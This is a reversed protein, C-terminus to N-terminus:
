RLRTETAQFQGGKKFEIKEPRNPTKRWYSIEKATHRGEIQGSKPLFSIEAMTTNDGLLQIREKAQNYTMQPAYATFEEAEAEVAGRATLEIARPRGPGAPMEAIKLQECDLTMEDPGLGTAPNPVFEQDWAAVPGYVTHVDGFLTLERPDIQGRAENYFEVYLYQLQDSRKADQGPREATQGRRRAAGADFGGGLRTSKLWAPQNLEPRGLIEGTQQNITLSGLRLRDFTPLGRDDPATSQFDVGGECRFELLDIQEREARQGFDVRDTLTFTMDRAKLEQYTGHAQVDGEFHVERGDFNMLRRWHVTIPQPQALPRGRFDKKVLMTLQGPADCSLLNQGRDLHVASSDITLGRAEIHAPSGAGGSVVVQEASPDARQVHIRAGVVRLPEEGPSTTLERFVAPRTMQGRQDLAVAGANDRAALIEVEAIEIDAPKGDRHSVVTQAELTQGSIQYKKQNESARNDLAFPRRNPAAAAPQIMAEATEHRFWMKMEAIQGGLRKSDLIQVGGTALMRTPLAFQRPSGDPASAGSHAVLNDYRPDGPEILWLHLEGALIRGVGTLQVDPQGYVSLLQEGDQRRLHLRESWRVTLRENPKNENLAASIVGAGSALLTGLAGRTKAPRYVIRPAFTQNAAQELQVERLGDPARATPPQQPRPRLSLTIEGTKLDYELIECIAKGRKAPSEVVVPAGTARLAVPELSPLGGSTEPPLDFDPATNSATPAGATNGKQKEEFLITLLHCSLHDSPANPQSHFVDVHDDFTAEKEILNFHFAGRCTIQVPRESEFRSAPDQPSVTTLNRNGAHDSRDAAGTSPSEGSQSPFLNRDGLDLHVNVDRGLEFSQVGGINPAGAHRPTEPSRPLLRIDLDSGAGYSKGLRFRVANPTWVRRPTIHVDRTVILLDDEPGPLDMRSRITIQGRIMGSSFEGFKGSSLDFDGDFTLLAGEDAELVVTRNPSAGDEAPTQPFFLMACPKVEVKGDPQPTYDHILLVTRGNQLVKPNDRAWHGPPFNEALLNRLSKPMLAAAARQQETSDEVDLAKASPEILPAAVLLYVWYCATVALLSAAASRIRSPM